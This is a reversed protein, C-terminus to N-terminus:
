LYVIAIFMSLDYSALKDIHAFRYVIFSAHVKDAARFVGVINSHFRFLLSYFHQFYFRFSNAINNTLLVCVCWSARAGENQRKLSSIICLSSILRISAKLFRELLDRARVIAESACLASVPHHPKQRACSGSCVGHNQIPSLMKNSIRACACLVAGITPKCSYQFSSFLRLHM